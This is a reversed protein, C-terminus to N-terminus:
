RLSMESQWNLDITLNISVMAADRRWDSSLLFGGREGSSVM